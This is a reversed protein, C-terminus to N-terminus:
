PLTYTDATLSIIKRVSCKNFLLNAPNKLGESSYIHENVETIIKYKVGSGNAPVWDGLCGAKCYFTKVEMACNDLEMLQNDTTNIFPLLDFSAFRLEELEKSKIFNYAATINEAKLTKEKRLFTRNIYETVVKGSAKIADSNFSKKSKEVPRNVLYYLVSSYLEGAWNKIDSGTLGDVIWHVSHSRCIILAKALLLTTLEKQLSDQATSYLAYIKQSFKKVVSKRASEGGVSYNAMGKLLDESSIAGEKHLIILSEFTFPWVGKAAHAQDYIRFVKELVEPSKLARRLGGASMLVVIRDLAEASLQPSLLAAWGFHDITGVRSYISPTHKILFEWPNKYAISVKSIWPDDDFLELMSFGPNSLVEELYLRAAEKLTAPSSNPNSAVAKRVRISRSARWIATLEASPTQENTARALQNKITTTPM